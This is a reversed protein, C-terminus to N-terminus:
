TLIVFTAGDAGNRTQEPGFQSVLPHFKLTERVAHKLAGTGIGHIIRVKSLGELISSDLFEELTFIAEELRQGRIDLEQSGAEPHHPISTTIIEPHEDIEERIPKIRSVSVIM